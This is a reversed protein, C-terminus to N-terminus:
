ERVLRYIGDPSLSFTARVTNGNTQINDTIPTWTPAHPSPKHQLQFNRLEASWSVELSGATHVTSLKPVAALASWASRNGSADVARVRYGDPPNPLAAPDILSDADARLAIVEGDREFEYFVVQRDDTSTTWGILLQGSANLGAYPEGPVTPESTDPNAAVTFTIVDSGTTAGVDDTARATIAYTGVGLPGYTVAFPQATDGGVWTANDFFDVRAISGDPDNATAQLLLTQPSDFNTGGAPQALSVTPPQNATTPVLAVWNLNFGGTEFTIRMFQEGASLAFAPSNVTTWTQWGGTSPFTLSGTKNDGNFDVRLSGSSSLSAVRAQLQYFGATQVNVRFELWEGSNGWGVNFGGDDDTSIEIDVGDTRYQGGNNSADDDHYSVGQGGTDYDEAQIVGPIAHATPGPYPSRVLNNWVEFAVPAAAGRGGADDIAVARLLHPGVDPMAILLEFPANAATGIWADDLYFQVERIAGDADTTEVALSLQGAGSHMSGDEPSTIEVSPPTNPAEYILEFWNLSASGAEVAPAQVTLRLTQAGPSLAFPDGDIDVWQPSSTAAPIVIPGSIDNGDRELGFTTAAEGPLARFTPRVMASVTSEVTFEAWEGAAFQFVEFGGDVDTTPRIDTDADRYVAGANGASADAHSIGPGGTDFDELQIRGPILMPQSFFPDQVVSIGSGVFEIWNLRLMDGSDANRFVLHLTVTEGPDSLPVTAEGYTSWSGTAPVTGSGILTGDHTGTRVEVTTGGTLAAYRLRLATINRLHVPAFAISDGDDIGAVDLNGSADGTPQNNVGRQETWYEAQKIRPQLIHVARGTLSAVGPAGDDTYSSELVYYVNDDETGHSVTEFFGSCGPYQSLGHSHDNHGIYPQVVLASCPISTDATSGDEADAAVTEFYIAEGWDFIGGDPPEVLTVVPKTNGATIALNATTVNGLLDIVRLQANYNGPTNYAFSPNAETSNTVDDGFFSWEFRIADGADEDYSGESSFQVTLPAPGSTPTASAVAVPAHSNGVYDIRIVQADANNGGFNSGWEIMYIAGDPGIEMEMPRKFTFSPLFPNIKLIDGNEDLKVERIWNRSWEYIFVTDDYYAPLKRTSPLAPDFHYVPGGMACRGGGLNLEPFEASNSYPYWIWAPRAPPLSAIGTNNPSGNAPAAANFLAGSVGTGFHHDVYAKNNGVFYPWGYNGASRALNFEDHGRPGRALDDGGADPGVEGWYLWGTELDVHIRFPNRNGMIYIEPRTNATGPPFLNGEPITYTGDPEPHIRLIKGRLDNSNASSKQADWASRGTREDIPSYGNSAFPNTDDGTSAYLNGDADFTLSGGSHCCQDRQHAITLLVEESSLDLTDGNMTFRSIHQQVLGVPSYFLYLWQNNAFDPDLTIGLLGNEQGTYVSLTGATVTASTDPKWIKLNGGREIFFVRGDPAIDLEMPNSVNADLVVKQFNGDITVGADYTVVGAAWEIGGLVHDLFEPESYSASTHGGGTYWARGGDFEHCWAIPHDHGMAGGGPAYTSEDLTALVHVAGRPNSQFNYWEDNRVWKGPLSQTSPHLRDAVEVTATQIAPHSQFYAGVLQGYWPWSYETDSASHIGVYGGGAQIFREFAAQQSPDLIDGTTSLFIVVDFPALGSDTFVSADETATVDFEHGVGLAQIAAIGDPISAHRFGATKSFVLANFDHTRGNTPVLLFLSVCLFVARLFRRGSGCAKPIM